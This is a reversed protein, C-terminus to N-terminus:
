SPKELFLPFDITNVSWQSHMWLCSLITTLWLLCLYPLANGPQDYSQPMIIPTNWFTDWYAMCIGLSELAAKPTPLRSHFSNRRIRYATLWIQAGRLMLERMSRPNHMCPHWSTVGWSHFAVGLCSTCQIPPVLISNHCAWSLSFAWSWSVCCPKYDSASSISAASVQSRVLVALSWQPQEFWFTLCPYLDQTIHQSVGRWM